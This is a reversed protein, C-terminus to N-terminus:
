ERRQDESEIRQDRKPAWGQHGLLSVTLGYEADNM